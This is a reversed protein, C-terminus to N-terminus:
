FCSLTLANNRALWARPALLQNSQRVAERATEALLSVNVGPARVEQKDGLSPLHGRGADLIFRWQTSQGQVPTIFLRRQVTPQYRNHAM